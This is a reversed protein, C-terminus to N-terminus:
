RAHTRLLTRGLETCEYIVERSSRRSTVLGTDRLVALHNSVGGASLGFQGALATTSAPQVLSALLTARTGGMLKSLGHPPPGPVGALGHEALRQAHHAIDSELIGRIQLWEDRLLVEWCSPVADALRRRAAVPDTLLGVIRRRAHPDTQDQLCRALEDVLVELPTDGLQELDEDVSPEHRRPPPTLFDPTYGSLPHLGFLLGLDVGAARRGPKDIWVQHSPQADCHQIAHVAMVTEWVPSIAFRVRLLGETGFTAEYAM